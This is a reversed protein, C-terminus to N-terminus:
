RITELYLAYNNLRITRDTNQGGANTADAYTVTTVFVFSFSAEAAGFTRTNGANRLYYTADANTTVGNNITQVVLQVTSWQAVLPDSAQINTIFSNQYNKFGTNNLGSFEMIKVQNVTGVGSFNTSFLGNNIRLFVETKVATPAITGTNPSPYYVENTANLRLVSVNAIKGIVTPSSTNTATASIAGNINVQIGSLNKFAVLILGDATTILRSRVGDHTEWLQGNLDREIAGNQPITTLTGNPIKLPPTTATGIATTIFDDTYALTGNKDQFKADRYTSLNTTNLKVTSGGESKVTVHGQLGGIMTDQVSGWVGNQTIKIFNSFTWVGSIAQAQQKVYIWFREVGQINLFKTTSAINNSYDNTKNETDEKITNLVKGMEATLAKTVGGTTLDNVLITPLYNQFNEIADVIEQITDLNINDSSLLTNIGDIQNQLVLGQEASLISTSGGDYLNDIINLYQSALKTFEDLPAYGGTVGKQAKDEKQGFLPAHANGDNLHNELAEKEAKSLLLEDIGEVEAVPIKESKHRFSDWTDWFQQQTPILDTRFWNKITNLSVIAM